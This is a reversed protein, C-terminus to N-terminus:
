EHRLAVMPDVAMARRAPFYTAILAAGSLVITVIAYISVDTASVGYLLSSMLRTAALAGFLGTLLGIGIVAVSQRLIMTLMDIKQAGLAMRIGIEKTRQAVSYAIVGYIGIAALIMAVGAFTGLLFMNFRPQALTVGIRKELPELTPVFLDKDFEHVINRLSAQLGSPASAATRIVVDMRRSPDQSAPIYFEPLPQTALSEHRSGGVIGVIERPPSPQNSPQSNDGHTLIIQQGVANGGPFNKKAFVDNVIVVPLSDKTDHSNFARGNLLPTRMASFYDPTITLHSAELEQGAPRPPQGVISFTSGSDNGSFPMPFAAGAAEVGPLAALKPMIQEFFQRHKEPEPYKARPLILGGVLAHSPEFGPQTARLNAFSKILLGAGALLLLSLAVQAVVLLRRLQHSEPGVAGRNGEQLSENVNPWTVQLAPVLASVLTSFIAAIFTFVFVPGNIAIQGLRPLDQPGFVRLLDIGWGALLLGGAAGFISLLFGESLLQRVVRARSAGLATRIAIERRRTTARALLLNAVNACAILLVFVVAAQITVLAPRVDGVIDTHLSFVRESRGANSKPYQEALRAAITRMEAECKQITVGPKLRGVMRLFHGDRNNVEEPVLPHLPQLYDARAGEVPFQFGPPMVGLVTYLRWSLSIQKGVINPDSNFLSKWAYDTLVVVRAGVNDDERTYVRGRAPSVGLVPFIDSTIAVGELQRSEEAQNLVAGARTFAALASLTQSQGRLDVYDPISETQKETDRSTQSWVAVLENPKPFPLSRLLVTDIVSFIASNAGIGLALTLIAIVTFGPAKVLMRLAYKLDAFM